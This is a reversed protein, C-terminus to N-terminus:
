ALQRGHVCGLVAFGLDDRRKRRVLLLAGNGMAGVARKTWDELAGILDLM